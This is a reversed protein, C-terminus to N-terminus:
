NGSVKWVIFVDQTAECVAYQVQLLGSGVVNVHSINNTANDYYHFVM